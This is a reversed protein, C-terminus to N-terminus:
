ICEENKKSMKFTLVSHLKVSVEKEEKKMKIRMNEGEKENKHYM